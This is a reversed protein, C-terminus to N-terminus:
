RRRPGAPAACAGLQHVDRDLGDLDLAGAALAQDALVVDAGVDVEGEEDADVLGFSSTTFTACAM